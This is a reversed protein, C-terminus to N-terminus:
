CDFDVFSIYIRIGIAVYQIRDDPIIEFSDSLPSSKPWQMWDDFSSHGFACSRHPLGLVWCINDSYDHSCFLFPYILFIPFWLNLIDSNHTLFSVNMNRIDCLATFFFLFCTYFCDFVGHGAAPTAGTQNSSYSQHSSFQNYKSM